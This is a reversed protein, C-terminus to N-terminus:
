DEDKQTPTLVVQRLDMVAGRAISIPQVRLRYQGPALHVTGLTIPQFDQWHDTASVTHLIQKKPTARDAHSYFDFKVVSGGHDPACGQLISVRYDGDTAVHFDWYASDNPNAWYGLTRKIEKPEWQLLLGNATADKAHLLIPNAGRQSPPTGECTPIFTIAKLNMVAPGRKTQCKASVTYTTPKSLYVDGVDVTAYRYWSGTPKLPYALSVLPQPEADIEVVIGSGDRQRNGDLAYTLQVHYKGPRTAKYKWQVFDDASTWFGIRDNGPQTELKATRGHIIADIPSLVIRGDPFQGTEDAFRLTIQRDSSQELAEPLYLRKETADTNFSFELLHREWGPLGIAASSINPTTAPLTISAQAKESPAVTLRAWGQHTNTRITGWPTDAVVVNDPHPRKQAHAFAACM